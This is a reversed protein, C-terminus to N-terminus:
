LRGNQKQGSMQKNGIVRVPDDTMPGSPSFLVYGVSSLPSTQIQGQSPSGHEMKWMTGIAVVFLWPSISALPAVNVVRDRLMLLGSTNKKLCAMGGGM